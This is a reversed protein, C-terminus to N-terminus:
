FGTQPAGTKRDAMGDPAGLAATGAFFSGKEHCIYFKMELQVMVLGPVHAPQVEVVVTLQEERQDARAVDKDAVLYVGQASPRQVEDPLVGEVAGHRLSEV